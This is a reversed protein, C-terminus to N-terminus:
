WWLWKKAAVKVKEDKKVVANKLAADKKVAPRNQILNWEVLLM